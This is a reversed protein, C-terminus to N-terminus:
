STVGAWPDGAGASRCGRENERAIGAMAALDRQRIEHALIIGGDGSNEGLLAALELLVRALRGQSNLFSAAGLADTTERM